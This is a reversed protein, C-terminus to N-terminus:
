DYPSDNLMWGEYLNVVKHRFKSLFLWTRLDEVSLPNFYRQHGPGVAARNTIWNLQIILVATGLPFLTIEVREV